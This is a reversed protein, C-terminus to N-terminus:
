EAALVVAPRRARRRPLPRAAGRPAAFAAAHGAPLTIGSGFRAVQRGGVQRREVFCRTLIRSAPGGHADVYTTRARFAIREFGMKALAKRSPDNAPDVTALLTTFTLSAATADLFSQLAFPVVGRAQHTEDIFGMVECVDPDDADIEFSLGGLLRDQIDAIAVLYHTRGRAVQGDLAMSLYAAPGMMRLRAFFIAKNIESLRALDSWAFERVIHAPERVVYPELLM